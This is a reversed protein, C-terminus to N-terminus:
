RVTIGLKDLVEAIPIFLGIGAADEKKLEAIAVVEGASDVLPGGSNGPNISVDSQIYKLGDIVREASIIGRTMTGSLQEGFPSGIAFVEEGVKVPIKRISVQVSSESATKILAVDRVPDTRVVEGVISHGGPFKIKVFKSEGVVHYNSIIYGDKGVYFGSGVGLGSEVTVVTSLIAKSNKKIGDNMKMGNVIAIKEATLGVVPVLDRFVDVYNKDSFAIDLASLFLGEDFQEMKIKRDSSFAGDLTKSYVIKKLKTSYLEVKLKVSSTGSVEKSDGCIDYKMSLLTFGVKFDAENGLKESFASEEGEFKPYGLALSRDSYVKSIRSVNYTDLNKNYPIEVPDTCFLGNAFKGVKETQDINSKWIKFQATKTVGDASVNIATSRGVEQGAHSINITLAVLAATVSSVYQKM